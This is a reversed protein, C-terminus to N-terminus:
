RGYPVIWGSLQRLEHDPEVEVVYDGKSAYRQEPGLTLHPYIGPNPENETEHEITEILYDRSLRGAMHVLAHELTSMVFYTDLQILEQTDRIKRSQLWARTRYIQPAIDSPLARPYTMQLRKPLYVAFPSGTQVLLGGSAYLPEPLASAISRWAPDTASLWVAVASPNQEALTKKWGSDSLSETARLQFALPIKGTKSLLADRFSEALRLGSPETRYVQLVRSAQHQEGLWEALAAAEGPLGKSLYVTELSPENLVPLETEPFISPVREHECFDHIPKWEGESLGGVFAFVPAEAYRRRLQEEWNAPDGTVRWVDLNWARRLRRFEGKYYPSFDSRALERAIERNHDGIFTNMVALM